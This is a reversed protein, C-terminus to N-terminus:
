VTVIDSNQNEIIGGLLLLPFTGLETRSLEVTRLPVRPGQSGISYKSARRPRAQADGAGRGYGHLHASCFYQVGRWVGGESQSHKTVHCCAINLATSGYVGARHPAGNRM